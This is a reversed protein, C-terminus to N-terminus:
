TVTARSTYFLFYNSVGHGMPLPSLHYVSPPGATNKLPYIKLESTNKLDKPFKTNNILGQLDMYKKPTRSKLHMNNATHLIYLVAWMSGTTTLHTSVDENPISSNLKSYM